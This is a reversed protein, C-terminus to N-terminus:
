RCKVLEAERGLSVRFAERRGDVLVAGEIVGDLVRGRIEAPRSPMERDDLVPGPRENVYVAALRFRGEADPRIGGKTEVRACGLELVAREPFTELAAGVGGWAGSPVPGPAATACCVSAAFAAAFFWSFASLSREVM